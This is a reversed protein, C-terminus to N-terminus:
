IEFTVVHELPLQRLVDPQDSPLPGFRCRIVQGDRAFRVFEEQTVHLRGSGFTAGTLAQLVDALHLLEPRLSVTVQLRDDKPRTGWLLCVKQILRAGITVWACREGHFNAAELEYEALRELSDLDVLFRDRSSRAAFVCDWSPSYRKIDIVPTGDVFDLPAVRLRRGEVALLRAATLAIPNPRAVSRLGFVGRRRRPPEYEPRVLQLRDRDAHVFWGLIWIHSNEEIRLLGEEFEPYIEVEAEVGGPPMMRRDAIPSHVIGIPVLEYSSVEM